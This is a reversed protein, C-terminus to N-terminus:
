MLLSPPAGTRTFPSYLETMLEAGRPDEAGIVVRDPKLFDDIAAGQKLFEPNSVVSFPHTTEGRLVERVKAATVAGDQLQTTGVSGRPLLEGAAEGLPTAGLLAVVLAAGSLVISLRNGVGM